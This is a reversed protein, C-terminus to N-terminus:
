KWVKNLHYIRKKVLGASVLDPYDKKLILWNDEWFVIGYRKDSLINLVTDLYTQPQM